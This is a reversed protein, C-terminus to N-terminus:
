NFNDVTFLNSIIFLHYYENLPSARKFNPFKNPANIQNM